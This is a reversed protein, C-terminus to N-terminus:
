LGTEEFIPTRIEGYGYREIIERLKAELYQWKRAEDPLVDYTGRPRNIM